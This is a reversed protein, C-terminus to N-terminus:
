RCLLVSWKSLTVGSLHITFSKHIKNQRVWSKHCRMVNMFRDPSEFLQRSMKRDTGVRRRALAFKKAARWFDNRQPFNPRTYKKLRRPPGRSIPDFPRQRFLSPRDFLWPRVHLVPNCTLSAEEAIISFFSVRNTLVAQQTPIRRGRGTMPVPSFGSRLAARKM